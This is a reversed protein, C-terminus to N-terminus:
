DKLNREELTVLRSEIDRVDEKLEILLTALREFLPDSRGIAQNNIVPPNNFNDSVSERPSKNAPLNPASSSPRLNRIESEVRNIRSRLRSIEANIGTISQSAVPKNNAIIM